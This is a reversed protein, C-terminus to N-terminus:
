FFLKVLARYWLLSITTQIVGWKNLDRHHTKENITLLQKLAYCKYLCKDKFRNEKIFYMEGTSGSMGSINPEIDFPVYRISSHIIAECLVNEFYVGENDNIRNKFHLFFKYFSKSACIIRSDAFKLDSHFQCSVFDCHKNLHKLISSVNNIILRGTIKIVISNDDIFRSNNLTFEIIEAEGYGKGKEKNQNGLYSLCELRGSDISDQFLTSIDTGSNETFVIPLCTEKLYFNIANVYQEKREEINNLATYVMGNPNICGTLLIVKKM